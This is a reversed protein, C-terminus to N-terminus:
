ALGNSLGFLFRLENRGLKSINKMGSENLASNVLSRKKEQLQIIRDEVTNEVLIQHVYVTKMQGIRHVRDMAQEEVYPNWFPEMIIVHSACTLTLGVNGAKLSILMLKKSSDTYFRRVTDDRTNMSMSGDYRLFEIDNEMLVKTLLEFFLTFQSFVLIKEDPHKLEINKIVELCKKMKASLIIYGSREKFVDSFVKMQVSNSLNVYKLFLEKAESELETVQISQNRRQSESYKLFAPYNFCDQKRCLSQCDPCKASILETSDSVEGHQRFYEDCCDKCCTHGCPSLFIANSTLIEDYCVSCTLGEEVMNKIKDVVNQTLRKVARGMNRLIFAANGDSENSVDESKLQSLRDGIEVLIEHCCAQRLRLLLTLINDYGTIKHDLIRKAHRASLSSIDNYFDLEDAEMKITEKIIIKPPLKLIPQGDIKSDKTRRLLIAKLLAQVRKMANQKEFIQTAMPGNKNINKLPIAIKDRFNKEECYPKIKLFRIPSYLDEVTNQMPTGTLCWRYEARLVACAKSSQTLKNKILHAEDLVIRYFIADKSYFPSKYDEGGTGPTPLVHAKKSVRSQRLVDSFHKKFESALTGYSVLIIDYKKTQRFSKLKDGSHFVFVNLQHQPKTKLAFEAEWQKLLAVPGVILSTKSTTATSEPPNNFILAMIQITKGLGMDDALFGGKNASEKEMRTLWSLGLRQHKLLTINLEKPTLVGDNIDEDPRINDILKQIDTDEDATNSFNSINTFSNIYNSNNTQSYTNFNNIFTNDANYKFSQFFNLKRDIEIKRFTYEKIHNNLTDIKSHYDTIQSEIAKIQNSINQSESKKLSIKASLNTIPTPPIPLNDQSSKISKQYENELSVLSSNIPLLKTRLDRTKLRLSDLLQQLGIKNQDLM